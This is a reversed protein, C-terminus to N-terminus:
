WELSELPRPWVWPDGELSIGFVPMSDGDEREWDRAFEGRLFMNRLGPAPCLLSSGKM